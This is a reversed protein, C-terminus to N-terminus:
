LERKVHLAAQRRARSHPRVLLRMRNAWAVRDEAPADDVAMAAM